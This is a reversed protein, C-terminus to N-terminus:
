MVRIIHRIICLYSFLIRLVNYERMCVYRVEFDDCPAGDTNNCWLGHENCHYSINEFTVFELASPLDESTFPTGDNDAM